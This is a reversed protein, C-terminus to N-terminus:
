AAAPPPITERNPPAADDIMWLLRSGLLDAHTEDPDVMMGCCATQVHQKVCFGRTSVQRPGFDSWYRHIGPFAEYLQQATLGTSFGVYLLPEFDDRVQEVWANVYDIVPQGVSKCGELDLALCAGQAYGALLANRRAANGLQRGLAETAEWGPYLCHQTLWLGLGAGLIGALRENNIDFAGNDQLGVYQCVGVIPQGLLTSRAIKQAVEPTIPSATDIALGDPAEKVVYAM